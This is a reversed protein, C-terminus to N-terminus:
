YSFASIAGKKTCKVLFHLFFGILSISSVSQGQHSIRGVWAPKKFLATFVVHGLTFFSRHSSPQRTFFRTSGSCIQCTRARTDKVNGASSQSKSAPGCTSSTTACALPSSLTSNARCTKAFEQRTNKGPASGRPLVGPLLERSLKYILSVPALM